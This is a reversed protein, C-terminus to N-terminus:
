GYPAIICLTEQFSALTEMEETVYQAELFACDAKGEALYRALHDQSDTVVSLNMEPLQEQFATLWLPLRSISLTHAAGIRFTKRDRIQAAARDIRDLIDESAILLREGEATLTVGKSHRILLVANLEEELKKIRATVNSQVYGLQGAAKSISGARAVERFIRLEQSEM